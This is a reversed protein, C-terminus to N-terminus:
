WYSQKQCLYNAINTWKMYKVKLYRLNGKSVPLANFAGNGRNSNDLLENLTKKAEQAQSYTSM